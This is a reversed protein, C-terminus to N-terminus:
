KETNIKIINSCNCNCDFKNFGAAAYGELRSEDTPRLPIETYDLTGLYLFVRYFISEDSINVNAIYQRTDPTFWIDAPVSVSLRRSIIDYNCM